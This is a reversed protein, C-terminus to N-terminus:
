RTDSPLVSCTGTTNLWAWPAAAAKSRGIVAVAALAEPSSKEAPALTLTEAPWLDTVTAKSVTPSSRTSPGSVTSSPKPVSGAPKVAPECSVVVTVMASASEARNSNLATLPSTESPPSVWSPSAM